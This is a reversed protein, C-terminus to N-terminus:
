TNSKKSTALNYIGSLRQMYPEIGFKSARKISNISLKQYIDPNRALTIVKRAFYDPNDVSTLGLEGAKSLIKKAAPLNKNALIPLGRAMAEVLVLGFSEELACHILIDSNDYANTINGLNGLFGVHKSLGESHVKDRLHQDLSGFGAISLHANIGHDKVLCQIVDIAFGINKVPELRSVALLRIQESSQFHQREQKRLPVRCFNDLVHLRHTVSNPLNKRYFESCHESCAIYQINRRKQRSLLLRRGIEMKASRLSTLSPREYLNNFLHFHSVQAFDEYECTALILDTWASHSHVIDPNFNKLFVGLAESGGRPGRLSLYPESATFARANEFTNLLPGPPNSFGVVIVDDGAVAQAKSIGRVM